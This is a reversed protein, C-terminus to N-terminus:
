SGGPAADRGGLRMAQEVFGCGNRDVFAQQQDLDFGDLVGLRSLRQEGLDVAREGFGVAGGAGPPRHELAQAAHDFVPLQVGGRAVVAAVALAM